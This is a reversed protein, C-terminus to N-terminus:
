RFLFIPCPCPTSKEVNKKLLSALFRGQQVAVTAVGPLPHGNKSKFHAADGLVFIEPHHPLSLDPNVLVRGAKDYEAPLTKVVSPITNGAAWIITKSEIFTDGLRVGESNIETVAHNLLVQVGLKELDKKTRKSLKPHFTPLVRDFAEVLFVRAKETKIRRFNKRMTKHILEAITGAFEVGTPGAGVIIFTLYALSEDAAPLREAQEFASLLHERILLSDSITKIGPAHAEWEPHGFYAHRSGVAIALYDYPFTEGNGLVVQKQVADIQTVEGMIVTTNKQKAFIERFSSCIDRPSLIATAVQYLLPQFLHHNSKDILTIEIDATKLGQILNLGAFGGGIVILKKMVLGYVYEM